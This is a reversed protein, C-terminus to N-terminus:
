IGSSARMEASVSAGFDRPSVPKILWAFGSQRLMTLTDAATDGTVIIVRRDLGPRACIRRAIDIGQLAGDIRLDMVLLAPAFGDALAAEAEAENASVRVEAAGLDRLMGAVAERALQDDDVVLAKAGEVGASEVIPARATSPAAALPVRISFRAGQGPASQLEVRTGLLDAVSKVIALGLGLGEAGSRSDLRVFEDFIRDQDETSIGPGTDSVALELQDGRAIVELRAKGGGHRLANGVLNRLIGELLTPDSRAALATSASTVQGGPYEAVIRDLVDQLPFDVIDPTVIRAQIRALDLLKSFMGSMSHTAREMKTLIDRAEDGQVRRQLASLYLTLAHLPQRMDHSAVALFRTKALDSAAARARAQEALAHALRWQERERRLALIALGSAVLSLMALIIGIADLRQRSADEAARAEDIRDNLRENFDASEERFAAYATEDGETMLARAPRNMDAARQDLREAVLAAMREVSQLLEDNGRVRERLAALRTEAEARAEAFEALLTRRRVAVYRIAINEAQEQAQSLAILDGRAARVESVVAAEEAHLRAGATLLAVLGLILLAVIAIAAALIFEARFPKPAESTQEAAM